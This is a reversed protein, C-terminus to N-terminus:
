DLLFALGCLNECKNRTNAVLVLLALSVRKRLYVLIRMLNTLMTMGLKGTAICTENSPRGLEYANLKENSGNALSFRGENRIQWHRQSM